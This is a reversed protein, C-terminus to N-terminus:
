VSASSPLLQLTLGHGHLRRLVCGRFGAAKEKQIVNGGCPLVTQNVPLGHLLVALNQTSKDLFTTVNLESKCRVYLQLPPPPPHHQTCKQQQQQKQRQTHTRVHTCAHTHACTHANLMCAHTCTHMHSHRCTHTSQWACWWATNISIVHM